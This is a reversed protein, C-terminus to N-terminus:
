LGLAARQQRGWERAAEVDIQYQAIEAQEDASPTYTGQLVGIGIRALYLEHDLSYTARIRAIVQEAILRCQPSAAKIQERLAPTVTVSQWTTLTDPVIPTIGDPVSVYRWGDLTCLETLTDDGPATPRPDSGNPGTIIVPQYKYIITM